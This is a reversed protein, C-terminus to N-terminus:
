AAVLGAAFELALLQVPSADRLASAMDGFRALPSLRLVDIVSEVQDASPCRPAAFTGFLAILIAERRATTPVPLSAVPAAKAAADAKAQALTPTNEYDADVLPRVALIALLYDEIAAGLLRADADLATTPTTM